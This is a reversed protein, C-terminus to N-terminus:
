KWPHSAYLAQLAKLESRVFSEAEEPGLYDLSFGREEMLAQYEPDEVMQKIATAYADAIEPDIGAPAVFVRSPGGIVDYGQEVATPVDPAADMREPGFVALTRLENKFKIAADIANMTGADTHGGLVANISAPGTDFPIVNLDLDYKDVLQLVALHDDNGIGGVSVNLEGPNAKAYEVFEDLTELDSSGAVAIAGPATTIKALYVLDDLTYAADDSEALRSILPPITALNIKLGDPPAGTIDNYAIEGGAGPMNVVVVTANEGLYRKLYEATLRAFVDGASGAAGQLTLTITVPEEPWQASASGAATLAAIAAVASRIWHM